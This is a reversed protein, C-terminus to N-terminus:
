NIYSSGGLIHTSHNLPSPGPNFLFYLSIQVRSKVTCIVPYRLNMKVNRCSFDSSVIFDLTVMPLLWPKPSTFTPPTAPHCTVYSLCPVPHFVLSSMSPKLHSLFCHLHCNSGPIAWKCQWHSPSQLQRYPFDRPQSSNCLDTYGRPM